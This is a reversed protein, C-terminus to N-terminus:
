LANLYKKQRKSWTTTTSSTLSTAVHRASACHGILVQTIPSALLAVHVITTITATASTGVAVWVQALDVGVLSSFIHLLNSPLSAPLLHNIDKDGGKAWKKRCKATNQNSSKGDYSWHWIAKYFSLLLILRIYNALNVPCLFRQEQKMLGRTMASIWINTPSRTKYHWSLQKQFQCLPSRNRVTCEEGSHTWM